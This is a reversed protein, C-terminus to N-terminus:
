VRMECSLSADLCGFKPCMGLVRVQYCLTACCCCCSGVEMTLSSLVHELGRSDFILSFALDCRTAAERTRYGWSPSTTAVALPSVICAAYRRSFPHTDTSYPPSIFSSERISTPCTTAAAPQTILSLNAAHIVKIMGEVWGMAVRKGTSCAAKRSACVM